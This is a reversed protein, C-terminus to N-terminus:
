SKAFNQLLFIKNPKFSGDPYGNILDLQYFRAIDEKAFSDSIDKFSTSAEATKAPFIYMVLFSLLLFYAVFKKPRM